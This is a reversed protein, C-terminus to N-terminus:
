LDLRLSVILISDVMKGQKMEDRIKVMNNILSVSLSSELM